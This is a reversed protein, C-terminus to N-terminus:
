NCNPTELAPCPTKTVDVGGYDDCTALVTVCKKSVCRAWGKPCAKRTSTTWEPATGGCFAWNVGAANSCCNRSSDRSGDDCLLTGTCGNPNCVGTPNPTPVATPAATTPTATTPANTIPGCIDVKGPKLQCKRFGTQKKKYICKGSWQQCQKKNKYKCLCTDYDVPKDVCQGTNRHRNVGRVQKKWNKPALEPRWLCEDKKLCDGRMKGSCPPAELCKMKKWSWVCEDGNQEGLGRICRYRWKNNRKVNKFKPAYRQPIRVNPRDCQASVASLTGLVALLFAAVQM